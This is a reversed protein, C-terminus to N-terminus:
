ARRNSAQRRSFPWPRRSWTASRWAIPSSSTSCCSNGIPRSADGAASPMSARSTMRSITSIMALGPICTLFTFISGSAEKLLGYRAWVSAYLNSTNSAMDLRLELRTRLFDVLPTLSEMADKDVLLNKVILSGTKHGVKSVEKEYMGLIADEALNCNARHLLKGMSGTDIGVVHKALDNYFIRFDQQIWVNTAVLFKFRRGDDGCTDSKVANFLVYTGPLVKDAAGMSDPKGVVSNSNFLVFGKPTILLGKEDTIYKHVLGRMQYVSGTKHNSYPVTAFLSIMCRPVDEAPFQNSLLYCMTSLIVNAINLNHWFPIKSKKAELMETLRSSFNWVTQQRGLIESKLHMPSVGALEWVIVVWKAHDKAEDEFDDFFNTTLWYLMKQWYIMDIQIDASSKVTYTAANAKITQRSTPLEFVDKKKPVPSDSLNLINRVNDGGGTFDDDDDLIPAMKDMDDETTVEEINFDTKKTDLTSREYEVNSVASFVGCM